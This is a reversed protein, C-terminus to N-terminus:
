LNKGLNKGNGCGVELVSTTATADASKFSEVTQRLFSEVSPWVNYRSQDFEPAIENYVDNVYRKEFQEPTLGKM